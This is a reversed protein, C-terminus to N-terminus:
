SLVNREAEGEALDSETETAGPPLLAKVTRLMEAILVLVFALCAVPVAFRPPWTIIGTASDYEGVTAQELANGLGHWGILAVFILTCSLALLGLFAQGRGSLRDYVAPLDTHEDFRQATALGFFVLPIMWWYTVLPTTGEIPTNAVARLLVDVFVNLVMGLLTIGGLILSLRVLIKVANDLRDTATIGM